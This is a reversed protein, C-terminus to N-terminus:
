RPLASYHNGPYRSAVAGHDLPLLSAMTTFEADSTRGESTEDTVNTFRVSDGIWRRLHPMVEQDGVRFDVVYDQLSEVQIVILNRGRAVGFSPANPGSRLAARQGFWALAESVDADTAAPRLVTSRAYNWLDYAHFGFLGLHEVVARDRFMQDLPTSALV